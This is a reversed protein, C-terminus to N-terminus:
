NFKFHKLLDAIQNAWCRWNSLSWTSSPLCDSFTQTITVFQEWAKGWLTRSLSQPLFPLKRFLHSYWIGLKQNNEEFESTIINKQKTFFRRTNEDEENNGTKNKEKKALEILKEKEQAQLLRSLFLQLSPPCHCTEIQLNWYGCFVGKKENRNNKTWSRKM